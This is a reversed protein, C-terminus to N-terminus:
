QPARGSKIARYRYSGYAFIIAKLDLPLFKRRCLFLGGNAALVRRGALSARLGEVSLLVSLFWPWVIGVGELKKREGARRM